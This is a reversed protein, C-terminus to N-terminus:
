YNSTKIEETKWKLFNYNISINKKIIYLINKKM